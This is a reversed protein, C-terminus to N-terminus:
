LFLKIVVVFVISAFIGALGDDLMVGLANKMKSDILSIPYPKVIDFYRFLIFTSVCLVLTSVEAESVFFQNIFICLFIGFTEDIVVEKPDMRGTKKMYYSTAITGIFFIGYLLYQKEYFSLFPLAPYIALVSALTGVTGPAKPFLGTFFFTAFFKSLFFQM